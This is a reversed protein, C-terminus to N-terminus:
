LSVMRPKWRVVNTLGTDEALNTLKELTFLDSPQSESLNDLSRLDPDESPQRRDVFPDDTPDTHNAPSTIIFHTAEM